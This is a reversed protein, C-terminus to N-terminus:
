KQRKLYYPRSQVAVPQSLYTQIAYPDVDDLLERMAVGMPHTSAGYTLKVRERPETGELLFTDFPQLINWRCGIATEDPIGYETISSIAATFSPLGETDAIVTFIAEESQVPDNVRFGWTRVWEPKYVPGPAACPNPSPLNTLFTTKFKPEGFLEKGVKIAIPDDCPVFIRHNGLLKTQDDGQLWQDFTIDPVDHARGKPYAVINLELEQTVGSASSSWQSVPADAGASFFGTYVQFNYSVSAKGGFLAPRLGCREFKGHFFPEVREKDVLYHVIINSLSSYYFPTSVGTPIPPLIQNPPSFTSDATMKKAEQRLSFGASTFGVILIKGTNEEFQINCNQLIDRLNNIQGLSELGGMGHWM